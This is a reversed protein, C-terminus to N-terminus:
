EDNEEKLTSTPPTTVDISGVGAGGRSPLPAEGAAKLFSGEWRITVARDVGRGDLPLPPRLGPHPTKRKFTPLDENM